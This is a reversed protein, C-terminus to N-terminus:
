HVSVVIELFLEGVERIFDVHSDGGPTFSVFKNSTFMTILRNVQGNGYIIDGSQYNKKIIQSGSSTIQGLFRNRFKSVQGRKTIDIPKGEIIEERSIRKVVTLDGTLCRSAVPGVGRIKDQFGRIALTPIMSKGWYGAMAKMVEAHEKGKHRYAYKTKKLWREAWKELDAQTPKFSDKIKTVRHTLAEPKFLDKSGKIAPKIIKEIVAEVDPIVKKLQKYAKDPAKMAGKIYAEIMEPPPQDPVTVLLKIHLIKTTM